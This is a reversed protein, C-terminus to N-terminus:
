NKIITKFKSKLKNESYNKFAKEYVFLMRKALDEEGFKLVSNRTKERLIQREEENLSEFKEILDMMEEVNEYTVGNVWNEIQYNNLEDSISFVFLGSAMAELRSISNVESLSATIYFDCISYFLPLKEHEIKGLFIVNDLVNLQKALNEFNKRDPGDGFILLKNNKKRKVLEKFNKILVDVNKEKGLRGCFCGVFEGDKIGIKKKLDIKKSFDISGSNFLDLEVSNQVIEIEKKLGCSKFFDSIKVSPGVVCSAKKALLKAYFHMFKKAVSILKKPAIYYVYDDYMTHMTYVYPIKLLRAASVGSFGIGFETHIHVIDPKFNKIYKFRTASIPKAVGYNYIKKLSMGPCCLVGDKLYHKKIKPLACVVLVEHGLKELGNKLTDVHTKVGNFYTLYAELFLAIKM